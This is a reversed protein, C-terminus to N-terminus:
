SVIYEATGRLIASIYSSGQGLPPGAATTRHTATVGPLEIDAPKTGDLLVPPVVLTFTVIEVDPIQETVVTIQQGLATDELLLEDGSFQQEGINFIPVGILSTTSYSVPVEDLLLRFSNAPVMQTSGPAQGPHQTQEVKVEHIGEADRLQIKAIPRDGVHFTLHTSFPTLLNIQSGVPKMWWLEVIPPYSREPGTNLWVKYNPTATDGTATVIIEDKVQKAHYTGRGLERHRKMRMRQLLKAEFPM